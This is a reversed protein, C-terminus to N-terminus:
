ISGIKQMMSAKWKEVIRKAVVSYKSWNHFILVILKEESELVETFDREGKIEIV